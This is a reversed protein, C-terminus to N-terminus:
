VINLSPMGKEIFGQEKSALLKSYTKEIMRVSTGCNKAIVTLPVEGEIAHSIYTHRLAYISGKKPLGAAM